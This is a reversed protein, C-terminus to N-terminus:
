QVGNGWSSTSTGDLESSTVIMSAVSLAKLGGVDWFCRARRTSCGKESARRSPLEATCTYGDLAASALGGGGGLCCNSSIATARGGAKPPV